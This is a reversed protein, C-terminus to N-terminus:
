INTMLKTSLNIQSNKIHTRKAEYAKDSSRTSSGNFILNRKSKTKAERSITSYKTPTAMKHKKVHSGHITTPKLGYYTNRNDDGNEIMQRSNHHKGKCSPKSMDYINEKLREKKM